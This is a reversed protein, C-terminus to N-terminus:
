EKFNISAFYNYAITIGIAYVTAVIGLVVDYYYPATLALRLVVTSVAFGANRFVVPFSSSYGLAVLVMLIDCLILVTFFIPFFQYFVGHSFYNVASGTGIGIFILFLLLSMIKKVYIFSLRKESSDSIPFRQLLRYYVILFLIIILAGFSSALIHFLTDSLGPWTIPENFESFSKFCNRLLLISFIELQKGLARSISSAIGFILDIVEFILFLSFAVNAAAFHSYPVITGISAPLLSRRKLEILVLSFLYVLVMVPGMYKKVITKEWYSEISDFINSFFLLVKIM